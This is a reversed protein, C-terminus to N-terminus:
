VWVCWMQYSGGSHTLLGCYLGSGSLMCWEFVSVVLGRAPNSSVIGTLLCGCVWAKSQMVVPILWFEYVQGFIINGVDDPLHDTHTTACCAPKLALCGWTPNTHSLGADSSTKRWMSWIEGTLMMGWYEMKIWEDTVAV